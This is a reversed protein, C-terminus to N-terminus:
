TGETEVMLAEIYFIYTKVDSISKKFYWMNENIINLHIALELLNIM